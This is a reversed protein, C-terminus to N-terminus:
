CTASRRRRVTPKLHYWLLTMSLNLRNDRGFTAVSCVQNAFTTRLSVKTKQKGTDVKSNGVNEIRDIVRVKGATFDEESRENICGNRQSAGGTKESTRLWAAGIRKTGSEVAFVLALTPTLVRRAFEPLHPRAYKQSSFNRRDDVSIAQWTMALVSLAARWCKTRALKRVAGGVHLVCRAKHRLERRAVNTRLVYHRGFSHRSASRGFRLALAQRLKM